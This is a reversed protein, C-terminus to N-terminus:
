MDMLPVFFPQGQQEQVTFGNEAAVTLWKEAMRQDKAVGRGKEYMKGLEYQAAPLNHEEAAKSLWHVAKKDDTSVGLGDAYMLGLSFQAEGYERSAALELYKVAREYDEKLDAESEGEDEEFEPFHHQQQEEQKEEEEIDEEGEMIKALEEESPEKEEEEDEEMQQNYKYEKAPLALGKLCMMGLVYTGQLHQLAAAREFWRFAKPVNKSIGSAGMLHLVGLRYAAESFGLTFSIKYGTLAKKADVPVGLGKEYLYALNYHAPPFDMAAAREYYEKAKEYDIPVGEGRQYM